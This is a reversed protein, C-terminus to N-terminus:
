EKRKGPLPPAELGMQEKTIQRQRLWQPVATLM